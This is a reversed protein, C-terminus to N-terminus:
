DSTAPNPAKRAPPKEMDALEALTKILPAIEEKYGIGSISGGHKDIAEKIKVELEVAEETNVKQVAAKVMTNLLTNLDNKASAVGVKAGKQIELTRKVEADIDTNKQLKGLSKLEGKVLREIKGEALAEGYKRAGLLRKQVDILLQGATMSSTTDTDRRVRIDEVGSEPRTFEWLIKLSPEMDRLAEMVNTSSDRLITVAERNITQNVVGQIDKSYGKARELLGSNHVVESFLFEFSTNINPRNKDPIYVTTGEDAFSEVTMALRQIAVYAEKKSIRKAKPDTSYEPLQTDKNLVLKLKKSRLAKIERIDTEVAKFKTVDNVLIARELEQEKYELVNELDKGGGELWKTKKKFDSLKEGLEDPTLPLKEFKPKLEQKAKFLNMIRTALPLKPLPREESEVVQPTKPLLRPTPPLPRDPILRRLHGEAKLTSELQKIKSVTSDLDRTIEQRLVKVEAAIEKQREGSLHTVSHSSTLAHEISDVKKMSDQLHKMQTKLSGLQQISQDVNTEPAKAKPPIWRPGNGSGSIQM